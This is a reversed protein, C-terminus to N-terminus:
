NAPLRFFTSHTFFVVYHYCAKIDKLRTGFAIADLNRDDAATAVSRRDHHKNM